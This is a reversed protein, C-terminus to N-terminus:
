AKLIHVYLATILEEVPAHGDLDSKNGLQIM